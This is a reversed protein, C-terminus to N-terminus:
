KAKATKLRSDEVAFLQAFINDFQTNYLNNM